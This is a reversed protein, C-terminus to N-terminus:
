GADPTELVRGQQSVVVFVEATEFLASVDSQLKLTLEDIHAASVPRLPDYYVMVTYLRGLKSISLDIMSGGDERLTERVARRSAAIHQPGATVGALEGLGTIFDWFYQAIVTTCLLLVIVSDGIPAIPALVGDKLIHVGLLGVAAAGTIFGDFAAAKKELRLVDSQKGTKAWAREHYYWLLLCTLGVIVFYSVMPAFILEPQPEGNFHGVISFLANAIAFIVLGLLSLSRFTTFIAEDGAYGYPRFKDPKRQANRSVRKGLLAATFGILSFLGDVLIAQSHSLYAAVIGATAMFLNGFMGVNLARGELRQRDEAQLETM